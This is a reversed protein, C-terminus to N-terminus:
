ATVEEEEEEEENRSSFFGRLIEQAQLDSVYTPKLKVIGLLESEGDYSIEYDVSGMDEDDPVPISLSKDSFGEGTPKNEPELFNSPLTATIDEPTVEVKIVNDQNM